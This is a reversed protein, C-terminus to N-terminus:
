RHAMVGAFGGAIECPPVTIGPRIAARSTPAGGLLNRAPVDVVEVTALLVVLVAVRDREARGAVEAVSVFLVDSGVRESGLLRSPCSRSLGTAEAWRLSWGNFTVATGFV